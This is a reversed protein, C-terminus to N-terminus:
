ASWAAQGACALIDEAVHDLKRSKKFQLRKLSQSQKVMDIAMDFFEFFEKNNEPSKGIHEKMEKFKIAPAYMAGHTRYCYMCGGGSTTFLGDKRKSPGYSWLRAKGAFCPDPADDREQCLECTVGRPVWETNLYSPTVKAASTKRSLQESDDDRDAGSLTPRGEKKKKAGFVSLCDSPLSLSRLDNKPAM